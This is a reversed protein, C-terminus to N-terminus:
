PGTGIACFSMGAYMSSTSCKTSNQAIPVPGQSTNQCSVAAPLVPLPKAGITECLCLYEYYGIRFSQHYGWLNFNHPRHEVDGITRDWHYMNDMGLGHTICGGPFRMFRPQLDALAKVLDPRFHKLGNYTTRPELTVFDLDVTGETTFTLRM